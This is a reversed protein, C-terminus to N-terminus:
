KKGFESLPYNLKLLSRMTIDINKEENFAPVVISIKPLKDPPKPTDTQRYNEFFTYLFFISTFLSIYAASYFLVGSAEM